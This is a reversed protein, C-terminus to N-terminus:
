VASALNRLKAYSVPVHRGESLFRRIGLDELQPTMMAFTYHGIINNPRWDLQFSGFVSGQHPLYIHRFFQTDAVPLELRNALQNILTAANRALVAAAPADSMFLAYKGQYEYLRIQLQVPLGAKDHLEVTSLTPLLNPKM